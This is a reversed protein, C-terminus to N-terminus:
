ERLDIVELTPQELQSQEYLLIEYGREQEPTDVVLVQPEDFGIVGEFAAAVSSTYILADKEAQSGVVYLTRLPAAKPQTDVADTRSIPVPPAATLDHVQVLSPDFGSTPDSSAVYLDEQLARALAVGEPTRLDIIHGFEVPLAEFEAAFISDIQEQSNVLYYHKPTVTRNRPEVPRVAPAAPAQAVPQSSDSENAQWLGVSAAIIAVSLGAILAGFVFRLNRGFTKNGIAINM